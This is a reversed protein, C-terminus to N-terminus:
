RSECVSESVEPYLAAAVEVRLGVFGADTIEVSAGAHPRGARGLTGCGPPVDCVM